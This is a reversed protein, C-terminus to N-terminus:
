CNSEHFMVLLICQTIAQENLLKSIRDVRGKGYVFLQAEPIIEHVLNWAKLLQYIGKKEALSGAFIVRNAVKEVGIQKLEEIGNYLVPIAKDYQLYKATKEATYKSVSTVGNAQDLLAREMSRINAPVDKGAEEMFYVLSGHLKIITPVSLKPFPVYSNCFRMYDNYDPMEVIDVAYTKILEDLFLKYKKISRKIDWQFVGSKNLVKYLVRVMLSDQRRFIGSALGRRFRFVKVGKDEFQEEGAFGWDYFGAVIVKNGQRVMERALTQVATGIGGIRGPPYEDCLYLINM